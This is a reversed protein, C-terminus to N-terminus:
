DTLYQAYQGKLLPLLLTSSFFGEPLEMNAGGKMGRKLVCISSIFEAERVHVDLAVASPLRTRPHAAWAPHRILRSSGLLAANPQHSPDDRLTMFGSM